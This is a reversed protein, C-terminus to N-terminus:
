PPVRTQRLRDSLRAADGEILLIKRRDTAGRDIVIASKALGWEKALLAILARNARGNEPAASVAVKLLLAGDEDRALGQIRNGAAKPALKVRLRLRGDPQPALLADSAV